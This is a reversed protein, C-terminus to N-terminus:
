LRGTSDIAFCTSASTEDKLVRCDTKFTGRQTPQWGLKDLLLDRAPLAVNPPMASGNNNPCRTPQM